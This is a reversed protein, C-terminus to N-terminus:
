RRLPLIEQAAIERILQFIADRCREEQERTESRDNWPVTVRIKTATRLKVVDFDRQLTGSSGVLQAPRVEWLAAQQDLEAM